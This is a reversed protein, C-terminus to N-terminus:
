LVQISKFGKCILYTEKSRKKSSQPKSLKVYRFYKRAEKVVDESEYGTFIKCLLHRGPKLFKECFVLVRKVLELSRGVDLEKIGTTKPALDSIIVDFKKDIRDFIKNDFVDALLFSIGPLNKIQVKDIGMVYGKEGVLKKAIILWGGPACGLDLVFNKKRILNFRKNLEMLKYASRARYGEKKAKITLKDKRIM